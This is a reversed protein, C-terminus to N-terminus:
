RTSLSLQVRPTWAPDNDGAARLKPAALFLRDSPLGRAVLGDRVTLGRQLALERLSDDGAPQAALLLSEMEAPPLDGRAFGLANRPKNPLTTKQYVTKLLRARDDAGLPPTVAVTTRTADSAAAAAQPVARLRERAQEAQLRDDLLARQLDSREAAPDAAGTVTMKLGPKAVLAAAVKDLAQQGSDKLQATGPNFEVTSLDDTENGALLAFPSSFAKGLLNLIVRWIIGGVSFKPDNVSGSVPLNIDIVGNRDTLLAVALLVPLQTASASEVREGFTLQNLTVQNSAALKGDADIKYALDMSLKGREIAYGAYKGAYPSLPALELDTAKARIDLALPRATPNIQGSIDILATQAARGQLSITAMERTDSRLAGIRGNLETLRVSYNPRVFRDTFDIRGNRLRTPGLVLDVPLPAAASAAAPVAGPAPTAPPAAVVDVPAAATGALVASAAASPGGAPVDQLNFRGQETVTLRSYFDTLAMERVEIRPRAPPALAVTLGQLVLSQWTLLEDGSDAREGAAPRTNIQLETVQLDGDTSAHWGGAAQRASVRGQFGTDAHLLSVPLTDAAYLALLHLPLRQLTLQGDVQLPALGFRGNWAIAGSAQLAAQTAAQSHASNASKAGGPDGPSGQADLRAAMQLRPQAQRTGTAAPWVFGQLRLKLGSLALRLPEGTDPASVMADTWQLQGGSVALDQLHIRWPPAPTARPAAAADTGAQRAPRAAADPQQAAAPGTAPEAAWQALNMRGGADRSAALMPQLLTVSGIRLQRALLDVATQEVRLQGLSALRAARPGAGDRLQLDQLTAKHLALQLVPAQPGAAWDLQSDVSLRGSLQPRLTQALYPALAALNLDTLQVSLTAQQPAVKGDLTLRGAGPATSGATRLTTSLTVPLPPPAPWRLDTAQLNLDALQLAARPRVADDTWRVLGGNLRLADLSLQWPEAPAPTPRATPPPNPPASDAPASLSQLNIRGQADRALQLEAGDIKLEGLMARRALPQVDRLGLALTQWALVPAGDAAGGSLARSAGGPAAGPAALAVGDLQVSGQLSVSPSGEAPLAFRLKLDSSLRAQQLRLPLGAPLYGLWPELDLKAFALTLEGSRAAAFPRAQSGSDFRTGNVTFALRPETVVEVDAPLNSLFPLTLTLGDVQHRQGAPRDDFRLVAGRLALNYLAFRASEAPTAGPKPAFRALLDDIDYHGPATRALNLQLGDVVLAEVVPVRQRLSAPSLDIRLQAVQLLPPATAEAPAVAVAPSSPGAPNGAATETGAATAAGIRLGTVTLALRWPVFAVAEVAVPRGLLQGLRLPIQAKLLVPVGWWALGALLVLGALTWGLGKIWRRLGSM